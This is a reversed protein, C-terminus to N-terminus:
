SDITRPPRGALLMHAERVAEAATRAAEVQQDRFSQGPYMAFRVDRYAASLLELARDLKGSEVGIMVVDVPKDADRVRRYIEAGIRLTEAPTIVKDESM